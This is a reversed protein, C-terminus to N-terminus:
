YDFEFESIQNLYSRYQKNGLIDKKKAVIFKCKGAGTSRCEIEICEHRSKRIYTAAGAFFGRLYHCTPNKKKRKVFPSDHVVIESVPNIDKVVIKGWGAGTSMKAIYRVLDDGEYDSFRKHAKAARSGGYASMRYLFHAAGNYGFIDELENGFANLSEVDFLLVRMGTIKIKGEGFHIYGKRALNAFHFFDFM